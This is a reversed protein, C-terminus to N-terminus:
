FNSCHPQLRGEEPQVNENLNLTAEDTEKLDLNDENSEILGKKLGEVETVEKTNSEEHEIAM